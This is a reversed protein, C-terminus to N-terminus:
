AGKRNAAYVANMYIYVHDLKPRGYTDTYLPYPELPNKCVPMSLDLRGMFRTFAKRSASAATTDRQAIRVARKVAPDDVKALDLKRLDERFGQDTMVLAKLTDPQVNKKWGVYAEEVGAQVSKAKPFHRKFKNVRTSPMAVIYCDPYRQTLFERYGDGSNAGHGAYFVPRKQDIDSAPVGRRWMGADYLDYSGPIRGSVASIQTPTLRMPKITAEYDVLYELWPLTPKDAVFAFREISDVIGQDECWKVLKRRQDASVKQMNWGYVFLTSPWQDPPVSDTERGTSSPTSSYYSRRYRSPVKPAVVIRPAQFTSPVPQGRYNYVHGSAAHQAAVGHWRLMEKIADGPTSATDMQRQIATGINAKFEQAIRQLTTDTQPTYMLAERNPPFNVEGIKVFAVLAHSGKLGHAIKERTVPYPVNGMVVYDQSGEIVLMNDSVRLGDYGEPKRGNVLVTNPDWARLFREAKEAFANHSKVPIVVEVGNPEDTDVVQPNTMSGVGNEDRTISVTYSKGDKRAVLSFQNTYTLAAKCGLGLCGNQDNTARKTSAGYQSYITEIGNWDLGVGYDRIRLFPSLNNPLTLEVPRGTNGAEVHADWANTLYERLCAYEPDSYLDTLISMIHQMNATDVRMPIKRGEVTSEMTVNQQREVIM